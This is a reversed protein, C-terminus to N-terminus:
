QISPKADLGPKAVRMRGPLLATDFIRNATQAALQGSFGIEIGEGNMVKLEAQLAVVVGGSFAEGKFSGVLYEQLERNCKLRSNM